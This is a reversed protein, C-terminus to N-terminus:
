GAATVDTRADAAFVGGYAMWTLLSKSVLSLLVYSLDVMEYRKIIGAAHLVQILGFSSFLAFLSWVIAQVADPVEPTDNLVTYFSMIIPIWIAMHMGWAVLMLEWIEGRSAGDALRVEIHHGMYQLCANLVVIGVLTRQESIGALTAVIWLMVGASVAYEAWRLPNVRDAVIGDLVSPFAACVSHHFASMAPFIPVLGGLAYDTRSVQEGAFGSVTLPWVPKLATDSSKLLAAVVVAQVIHAVGTGGHAWRLWAPASMNTQYLDVAPGGCIFLM